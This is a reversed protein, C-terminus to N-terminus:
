TTKQTWPQGKLALKEMKKNIEWHKFLAINYQKLHFQDDSAKQQMVKLIQEGKAWINPCASKYITLWGCTFFIFVSFQLEHGAESGQDPDV